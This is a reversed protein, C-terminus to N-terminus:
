LGFYTLTFGVEHCESKFEFYLPLIERSFMGVSTIAMAPRAVPAFCGYPIVEASIPCAFSKRLCSLGFTRLSAECFLSTTRASASSDAQIPIVFRPVSSRTFSAPPGSTFVAYGLSPVIPKMSESCITFAEFFWSGNKLKSLGIWWGGRMGLWKG